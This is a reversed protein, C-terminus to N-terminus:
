HRKILISRTGGSDVPTAVPAPPLNPLVPGRLPPEWCQPHTYSGAPSGFLPGSGLSSTDVTIEYHKSWYSEVATNYDAIQRNLWQRRAELVAQQRYDNSDSVRDQVARVLNGPATYVVPNPDFWAAEAYIGPGAFALAAGLAPAFILRRV